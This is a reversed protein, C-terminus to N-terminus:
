TDKICDFSVKKTLVRSTTSSPRFVHGRCIYYQSLCLTKEGLCCKASFTLAPCPSALIGRTQFGCRQRAMAPFESMEAWIPFSNTCKPSSKDMKTPRSPALSSFNCIVGRQPKARWLYQRGSSSSSVASRFGGYRSLLLLSRM